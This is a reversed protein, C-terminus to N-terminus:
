WGIASDQEKRWTAKALDLAEKVAISVKSTHEDNWREEALSVALEIAQQKEAAVASLWKEKESALVNTMQLDQITPVSFSDVM